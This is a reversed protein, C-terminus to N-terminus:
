GVEADDLDAMAKAKEIWPNWVVTDPLNAKSVVVDVKTQATSHDEKTPKRSSAINAVTHPEVAGVYISASLSFSLVLNHHALRCKKSIGLVM